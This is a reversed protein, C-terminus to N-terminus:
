ENGEQDPNQGPTKLRTKLIDVIRDLSVANSGGDPRVCGDALHINFKRGTKQAIMETLERMKETHEFYYRGFKDQIYLMIGNSVPSVAAGQLM